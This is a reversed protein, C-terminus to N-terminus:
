AHRFCLSYGTVTFTDTNTFRVFENKGGILQQQRRQTNITRDKRGKNKEFFILTKHCPVIRFSRINVYRLFRFPDSAMFNNNLICSLDGKLCPAMM